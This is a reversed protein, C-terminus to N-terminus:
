KNIINIKPKDSKEYILNVFTGGAIIVTVSLSLALSVLAIKTWTDVREWVDVLKNYTNYKKSVNELDKILDEQNSISNIEEQILIAKKIAPKEVKEQEGVYFDQEVPDYIEIDDGMKKLKSKEQKIKEVADELATYKKGNILGEHNDRITMPDYISREFGIM